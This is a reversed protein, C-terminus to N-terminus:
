YTSFEWNVISSCHDSPCTVRGEKKTIIKSVESMVSGFNETELLVNRRRKVEKMQFNSLAKTEIQNVLIVWAKLKKSDMDIQKKRSLIEKKKETKSLLYEETIPILKETVELKLIEDRHKNILLLQELSKVLRRTRITSMLEKRQSKITKWDKGKIKIKRKKKEKPTKTPENDNIIEESEDSHNSPAEDHASNNEGFRKDLFTELIVTNIRNEIADIDVHEVLLRPLEIRCWDIIASNDGSVIEEEPTETVPVSSIRNVTSELVDEMIDLVISRKM